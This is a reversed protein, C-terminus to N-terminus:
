SISSLLYDFINTLAIDPFRKSLSPCANVVARAAIYFLSPPRIWYRQLQNTRKEFREDTTGGFVYICGEPTVTAAHFCLKQNLQGPLLKWRWKKLDLQWCDQLLEPRLIIRDNMFHMVSKETCGGLIYACDGFKVCGYYLRGVPYGYDIDPLTIQTRFKSESVNFILLDILSSTWEPTGGGILVIEDDVVVAEHRYRGNLDSGDHLLTWKWHIPELRDGGNKEADFVPELSRVELNYEWGTTGGFVFFKGNNYVLCSGYQKVPIDGVTKLRKWIFTENKVRKLLNVSNSARTGFPVATGGFMYFESLISGGFFYSGFSALEEPFDKEPVSMLEWTNTLVNFRWVEKALLNELLPAFGGIVYVYNRDCAMRMGSRETLLTKGSPGANDRWYNNFQHEIVEFLYTNNQLEVMLVKELLITDRLGWESDTSRLSRDFDINSQPTIEGNVAYPGYTILLGDKGSLLSGAKEFLANVAANSSIHIMNISLLYDIYAPQFESPLNWSSIDKRIDIKLARKVNCLEM